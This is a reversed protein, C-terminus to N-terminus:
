SDVIPIGINLIRLEGNVIQMRDNVKHITDDSIVFSVGDIYILVLLNKEVSVNNMCFM